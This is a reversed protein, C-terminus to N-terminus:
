IKKFFIKSIAQQAGLQAVLFAVGVSIVIAYLWLIEFNTLTKETLYKMSYPVKIGIVSHEEVDIELAQYRNSWVM